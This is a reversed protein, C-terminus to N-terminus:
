LLEVAKYWYYFSAPSSKKLKNLKTYEPHQILLDKLEEIKGLREIPRQNRILMTLYAIKSASLIADELHYSKQFFYGEMRKIGTQLIQFKEADKTGRLSILLATNFADALVSDPSVQINRYNIETEAIKNFDNITVDLENIHDFLVSIDNMQKIIEMGMDDDGRFYPIGTTEPAFATLKDALISNVSPVKITTAQDSVNLLHHKIPVENLESYKIEEFLVDLLVYSNGASAGIVSQYFFKYHAKPIKSNKRVHEEFSTFIGSTIIKDLHSTLDKKGGPVIIDIDISFRNFNEILLLLSTGGKFVFDLGSLQKLQELLMLAKIVKEIIIPDKTRLEKKKENLWDLTQTHSSIM